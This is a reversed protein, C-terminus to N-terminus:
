SRALLGNLKEALAPETLPGVHRDVIKGAQDVIITFPLAGSRNGLIRMLAIGAADIVLIPYDIKLENVFAVIKERSDIGIGVIVTNKDAFRRSISAFAPMEERCPACWTAWFNVVIIQGRWRSLSAPEGKLDILQSSALAQESTTSAPQLPSTRGWYVGLALSCAAVGGSLWWRRARNM